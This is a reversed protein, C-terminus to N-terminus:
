LFDKVFLGRTGLTQCTRVMQKLDEDVDALCLRCFNRVFNKPASFVRIIKEDAGSAFCFRYFIM